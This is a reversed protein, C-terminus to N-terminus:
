SKIGLENLMFAFEYAKEKLAEYRGSRGGHGADMNCKLVLPNKDTKLTRLKAVYKTPEHYLVQSDNLSTTVLIAPYDKKRWTTTPRITWCTSAPRKRRRTAGNWSSKRRDAAPIRRAHHQDRGRVAGRARRGQLPRAAYQADGRDATRRRQRGRDGAPRPRRVERTVLHDACAIFDTFTNKKKMLKGDLYWHRGMDSVAASTLWPTSSAATSCAGAAVPRFDVRAASATPVTATSSSPAKGDKKSARATSSRFPCRPATRHPPRSASREVYNAPDFGGPVETRKLLTREKTAPNYRYVSAPTVLSTYNLQMTDTDFEPNDGLSAEYAGKPFSFHPALDKLGFDYVRLQPLGAKASRHPGRFGQLSRHGRTFVAPNYALFDNWPREPQHGRGPCTM